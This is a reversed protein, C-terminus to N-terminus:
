SRDPDDVVARAARARESIVAVDVEGHSAAPVLWTGGVAAVNPAALYDALSEQRVGGTPVFRVGPFPGSLAKLTALGGAAEAPFFKIVDVGLRLCAMVETPTIAAPLVPVGRSQCRTVVEAALGPSVVFEAGAALAADLQAVDLVTGAGVTIGAVRRMARIADAAAATRFTVEAVPLGGAVLAEAIPVADAVDAVTIVPIVRHALIGQLEM